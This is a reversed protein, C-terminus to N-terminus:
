VGTGFYKTLLPATLEFRSATFTATFCVESPKDPDALLTVYLWGEDPKRWLVIIQPEFGDQGLVPYRGLIASRVTAADAADLIARREDAGFRITAQDVCSEIANGVASGTANGKANGAASAAPRDEDSAEAAPALWAVLSAVLSATVMVRGRRARSPKHRGAALSERVRDQNFSM